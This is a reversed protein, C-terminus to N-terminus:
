SQGEFIFEWQQNEGVVIEFKAYGVGKGFYYMHLMNTKMDFNHKWHPEKSIFSFMDKSKFNLKINDVSKKM